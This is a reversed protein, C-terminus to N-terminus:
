PDEVLLGAIKPGAGIVLNLPRSSPCHASYRPNMIGDAFETTSAGTFAANAGEILQKIM